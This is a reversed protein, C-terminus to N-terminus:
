LASMTAYPDPVGPLPHPNPRGTMASSPPTFHLVPLGRLADKM